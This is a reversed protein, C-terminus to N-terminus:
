AHVLERENQVIDHMEDQMNKVLLALAALLVEMSEKKTAKRYNGQIVAASVENVIKDVDIKDYNM